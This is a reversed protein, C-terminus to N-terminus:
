FKGPPHPPPPPGSGRAFERGKSPRPSPPPRAGRAFERAESLRAGRIIVSWDMKSVQCAQWRVISHLLSLQRKHLEAQIPLAGLLLQVVSSATCEPLSHIRRLTSIHFRQLQNIHKGSLSMVDLSYLLRPIM